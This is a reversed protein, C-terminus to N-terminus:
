GIEKKDDCHNKNAYSLLMYGNNNHSATGGFEIDFIDCNLTAEGILLLIVEANKTQPMEEMLLHRPNM